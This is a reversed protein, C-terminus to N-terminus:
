EFLRNYHKAILLPWAYHNEIRSRGAAGLESRLEPQKLLLSICDALERASGPTFLLGTVGDVVSFQLGGIRSAVVPRAAAMAELASIPMADQCISPFVVLDSGFYADALSKQSLWGVSRIYSEAGVNIDSTVLLEVDFGRCRVDQIAELVVHFGKLVENANGPFLVTFSPGVTVPRESSTPFQDLDIGAPIIEVRSAYPELMAGVIPNVVLVAHAHSLASALSRLYDVRSQAGWALDREQQHLSGFYTSWTSVCALCHDPTALQHKSCQRVLNDPDPLIRVNNLPCLCELADFRLLYPIGGAVDALAPKTNWADTIVVFDPGFDLVAKRLRSLIEEICWSERRFQLGISRIPLPEDIRGIEWPEYVVFFHRVEYKARELFRCLDVTHRNGGGYAPWNFLFSVVAIRKLAQENM